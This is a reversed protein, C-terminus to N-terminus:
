QCALCIGDISEPELHWVSYVSSGLPFFETTILKLENVKRRKPGMHVNKPPTGNSITPLSSFRDSMRM